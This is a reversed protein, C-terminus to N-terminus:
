LKCMKPQVRKQEEEDRLQTIKKNESVVHKRIITYQEKEKSPAEGNKKEEPLGPRDYTIQICRYHM